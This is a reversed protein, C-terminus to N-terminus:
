SPAAATRAPAAPTGLRSRVRGYLYTGGLIGAVTFLAVLKGEGVQALATGPCAGSLAWGAGFTLGGWVAGMRWPKAGLEIPRGTLTRNGSRRLLWFGVATTAIASGIVGVVHLDTLRFMAAITDYDTVRARSLAFGFLTGFVLFRPGNM